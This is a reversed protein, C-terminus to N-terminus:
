GRHQRIGHHGEKLLGLTFRDTPYDDAFYSSTITYDMLGPFDYDSSAKIFYYGDTEPTINEFGRGKGNYGLNKDFLLGEDDYLTIMAYPDPKSHATGSFINFTYSNQALLDVGFFDHDGSSYFHGSAREGAQLYGAEAFSYAEPIYNPWGNFGDNAYSIAGGHDDTLEIAHLNFTGTAQDAIDGIDENSYVEIFYDGAYETTFVITSTHIWPVMGMVVQSWM